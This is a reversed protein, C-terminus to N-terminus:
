RLKVPGAEKGTEFAKAAGDTIVINYSDLPVKPFGLMRMVFGKPASNLAQEYSRTVDLLREQGTQFENRGSEIVQQVKAYLSSDLAPNQETLMQFVAKSGDKGYRGEIAAIAVEKVDDRMMGPVQAVEVSKQYHNALLTKNRSHESKIKADFEAGTNNAGILVMVVLGALGIVIGLLVLAIIGASGQQKQM